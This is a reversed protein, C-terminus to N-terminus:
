MHNMKPRKGRGTEQNITRSHSPEAIKMSTSTEDAAIANGQMRESTYNSHGSDAADNDHNAIHQDMIGNGVSATEQLTPEKRSIM